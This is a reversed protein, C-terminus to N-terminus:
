IKYKLILLNQLTLTGNVVGGRVEITNTNSDLSNITLSPNHFYQGGTHNFNAGGSFKADFSVFVTTATIRTVICRLLCTESGNPVLIDTPPTLVATGGGIYLRINAYAITTPTAKSITLTSIVEVSDGATALENTDTNTTAAALTHSALSNFSGTTSVPTTTNYLVSTGDSGNTGNTGNTGNDGKVGTNGIPLLSSNNSGCGAM